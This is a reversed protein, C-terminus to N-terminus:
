TTLGYKQREEDTLESWGVIKDAFRSWNTATKYTEIASDPVYIKLVKSPICYSDITAPTETRGIIKEIPCNYYVYNHSAGPSKLSVPLLGVTLKTYAFTGDFRSIPNKDFIDFPVEKLSNCRTFIGYVNSYSYDNEDIQHLKEMKDFLGRPVSEITRCNEFASIAIRVNKFNDFLGAPISKLSSCGQFIGKGNYESLSEANGNSIFVSKPIEKLRYCDYFFGVIYSTNFCVDESVYELKTQRELSKPGIKTNGVTWFAVISGESFSVLTNKEEVSDM